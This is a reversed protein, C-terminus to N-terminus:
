AKGVTSPAAGGEPAHGGFLAVACGVETIGAGTGFAAAVTVELGDGGFGELARDNCVEGGEEFIGAIHLGEEFFVLALEGFEGGM